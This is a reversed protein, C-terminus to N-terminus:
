RPSPGRSSPGSMTSNHVRQVFQSFSKGSGQHSSRPLWKMDLSQRRLVELMFVTQCVQRWLTTKDRGLRDFAGKDVAALHGFPAALDSVASDGEPCRDMREYDNRTLQGSSNMGFDPSAAVAEPTPEKTGDSEAITASSNQLMGTEISGARRLRWLLSGLRLVLEREVATQPSFDATVAAEFGKYDEPDELGGIVM